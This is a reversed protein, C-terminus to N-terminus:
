STEDEKSGGGRHQDDTGGGLPRCKRNLSFIHIAIRSYYVDKQSKKLTKQRLGVGGIASGYCCCPLLHAYVSTAPAVVHNGDGRWPSSLLLLDIIASKQGSAYLVTCYVCYCNGPNYEGSFIRAASAVIFVFGMILDNTGMLCTMKNRPLSPQQQESLRSALNRNIDNTTTTDEERM